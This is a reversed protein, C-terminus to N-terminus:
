LRIYSDKDLANNNKIVSIKQSEVKTSIRLIQDAYKWKTEIIIREVLPDGCAISLMSYFQPHM